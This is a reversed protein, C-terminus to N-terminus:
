RGHAGPHGAQRGVEDREGPCRRLVDGRPCSGMIAVTAHLITRGWHAHVYREGYETREPAGSDLQGLHKPRGFSDFASRPAM